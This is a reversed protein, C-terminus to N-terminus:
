TKTKPKKNPKSHRSILEQYRQQIKLNSPDSKLISEYQQLALKFFHEEQNVEIDESSSDDEM